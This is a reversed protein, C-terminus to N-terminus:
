RFVEETRPRSSSAGAKRISRSRTPSACPRSETSRAGARRRRRRLRRSRQAPHLDGLRPRAEPRLRHRLALRRVPFRQRMLVPDASFLLLEGTRTDTVLVDGYKDTVENTAGDGARLGAGVTGGQPDVDFVASRYRDLLVAKNGVTVVQQPSVAGTITKVPTTATSCPRAVQARVPRGPAPQRDPHRQDPREARTGRNHHRVPHRGRHGPQRQHGPRPVPRGSQRRQPRHGRRPPPHDQPRRHPRHPQLARLEPPQASRWRSPAPTSTSRSPARPPPPCSRAPSPPTPCRPHSRPPPQPVLNATVQLDDDASSGSSSSCGALLATGTVVVAIMGALQRM